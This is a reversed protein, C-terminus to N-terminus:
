AASSCRMAKRRRQRSMVSASRRTASSRSSRTSSGERSRRRAKRRRICRRMCTRIMPLRMRCGRPSRACIRGDISTRAADRSKEDEHSFEGATTNFISRSVTGMERASGNLVFPLSRADSAASQERRGILDTAPQARGAQIIRHPSWPLARADPRAPLLRSLNRRIARHSRTGRVLNRAPHLRDDRDRVAPARREDSANGLIRAPIRPLAPHRVLRYLGPTRFETAAFTRGRWHNWTQQLGFLEFHNLLFTAVLVTIWGLASVCLLVIRAVSDEVSWVVGPMPQWQWILLAVVLTAALVFTSREAPEAVIKTWWRKFGRRAMVSHQVAFVGLLALNIAIAVSRSVDPASDITKPLWPVNAVFGIMYSFVVLFFVYVIAGYLLTLFRM